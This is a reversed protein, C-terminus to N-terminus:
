FQTMDDVLCNLYYACSNLFPIGACYSNLPEKPVLAHSHTDECALLIQISFSVLSHGYASARLFLIASMSIGARGSFRNMFKYTLGLHLIFCFLHYILFKM